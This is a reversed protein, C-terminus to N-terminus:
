QPRFDYFIANIVTEEESVTLVVVRSVLNSTYIVTIYVDDLTVFIRLIM